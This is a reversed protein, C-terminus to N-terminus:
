VFDTEAIPENYIRRIYFKFELIKIRPNLFFCARSLLIDHFLDM